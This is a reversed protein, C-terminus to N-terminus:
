QYDLFLLSNKNFFLSLFLPFKRIVYFGSFGRWQIERQFFFIIFQSKFIIYFKVCMFFKHLKMFFIFHFNRFQNEVGLAFHLFPNVNFVNGVISERLCWRTIVKKIENLVRLVHEWIVFLLLMCLLEYCFKKILNAINVTKSEPWLSFVELLTSTVQPCASLNNWFHKALLSILSLAVFINKCCCRFPIGNVAISISSFQLYTYGFNKM